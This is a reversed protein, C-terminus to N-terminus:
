LILDLYRIECSFTILNLKWYDLYGVRDQFKLTSHDLEEVLYWAGRRLGLDSSELIIKHWEESQLAKRDEM